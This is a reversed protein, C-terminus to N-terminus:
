MVYFRWYGFDIIYENDQKVIKFSSWTKWSEIYVKFLLINLYM